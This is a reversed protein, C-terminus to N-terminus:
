MNMGRVSNPNTFAVEGRHEQKVWKPGGPTDVQTYHVELQDRSVNQQAKMMSECGMPTEKDGLPGHYYGFHRLEPTLRSTLFVWMHCVWHQDAYADKKTVYGVRSTGSSNTTTAM